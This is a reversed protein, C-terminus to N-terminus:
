KMLSCYIAGDHFFHFALLAASQRSFEQTKKRKGREREAQLRSIPTENAASDTLRFLPAARVAYFHATVARNM